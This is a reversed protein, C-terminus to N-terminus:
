VRNMYLLEDQGVPLAPPYFDWPQPPHTKAYALSFGVVVLALIWLRNM